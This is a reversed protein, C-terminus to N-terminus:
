NYLFIFSRKQPRTTLTGLWLDPPGPEIVLEVLNESFYSILFLTWEAKHTCSLALQFFFYHSQDLFGLIRGYSDTMNVM